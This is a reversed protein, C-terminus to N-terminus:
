RSYTRDKWIASKGKWHQIASDWTMVLYIIGAFPLTLTWLPSISYYRVIPIYTGWILLFTVAGILQNTQQEEFIAIFPLIFAITMLVTCLLLLNISYYLQTFATRTVMDWIMSFHTYERHSIATHTLGIWTKGQHQKVKRALSCDDILEHKLTQFGGIARLKATKILICGGAAAAILQKNSNSLSFPYLLKFFYIFAPMLMKEWSTQMRLSAMLSVLDCNDRQSKAILIALTGPLLEIDADILLTFDTKVHALGQELAWLKGSWDAPLKDGQIIHLNDLELKSAIDATEDSSQDDILLIKFINGQHYISTLTKSITEAENRAPVLVTVNSLDCDVGIKGDLSERTSWPRWPLLFVIIWFALGPLAIWVEQM